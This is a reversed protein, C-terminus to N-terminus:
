GGLPKRAYPIGMWARQGGGEARIGRACGGPTVRVVLAPDEEGVDVCRLCM